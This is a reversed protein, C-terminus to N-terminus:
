LKMTNPSRIELCTFECSHCVVRMDNLEAIRFTLKKFFDVKLFTLKKFFRSKLIVDRDFLDVKKFTDVSKNKVM